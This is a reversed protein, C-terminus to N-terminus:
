RGDRLARIEALLRDIEQRDKDALRSSLRAKCTELQKVAEAYRGQERLALSINIYADVLGPDFAIAKEYDRVAQGAQGTTLEVSARGQWAAALKPELALAKDFYELARGGASPDLGSV